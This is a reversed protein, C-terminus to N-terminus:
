FEKWEEDAKFATALAAQMRGVVGRKPAAVPQRPAAAAPKPALAPKAAAPAPRKLPAVAPELIDEAPGIDEVRFFSVREDMAQSQQELAKAAAANQEVLASNQQTVEDMNTLATNVQDIGTSQEASAAAIDSVIDAVRKISDVIETLSAGARNVLEVGEKVQDSSNTILDKIDKAAQSSRQALSRVESAVVAFGRGAEGARAAEVAANLALLNTQRAIEDIVSIIDSIKRSSEEIRAMASVAQAVVAGGRDAVERTGTTFQNAQQANEANKKVTASIQEMSASTQELSAAQEETRQSLDTTSGSIEAATGAVERTATAISNITEQLRGIATNFDDKIQKYTETVDDLRYTLDGESLMGLGEALSRMVAAQEEAARAQAEANRRREEEGRSRHEATEAELRATEGAKNRFEVLARAMRGIEDDRDTHPIAVEEGQVGLRGVVGALDQLPRAISRVAMWIAGAGIGLGLLLLGVNFFMGRAAASELSATHAESAEGAGYMIELLTFLQPTTTDVWQQVSMPYAAGEASVKRMQEALPQFKGYYGEEALKLGKTVSPHDNSKLNVTLMKRLLALQSRVEAIASLKDAPIASKAAISQAIHSREFGAIDRLNWAILRINALRGLEPDLSATHALMASWVKQSTTSLESLAIFLNKVTDADRDPKAQKVAADAKARYGNAKDVAAKLEGLLATKNPFDQGNLDDYAASIKKVAATRRTEIEKLESAGAPQAAQLANNTALREMLIEYVGAILNNAATNQEVVVRAERYRAVSEYADKGLQYVVIPMILAFTMAIRTGVSHMKFRNLM